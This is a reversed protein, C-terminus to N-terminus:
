TQYRCPQYLIKKYSVSRRERMLLYLALRIGYIFLVVLLIAAPLTMVDWFMVGVAVALASISLGYGISFFYIFYIWGVSSVIFSILLLTLLHVM